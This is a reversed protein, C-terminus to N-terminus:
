TNAADLYTLAQILREEDGRVRYDDAQDIWRVTGNADMLISTPIAMRKYGTPLGLPIGLVTWSKFELAKHHELGFASIVKLDPDALLTIDDLEDRTRHAAAEAVSDKSLAVLRVGKEHFLARM